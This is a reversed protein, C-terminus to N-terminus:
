NIKYDEFYTINDLAEMFDREDYHSITSMDMRFKEKKPFKHKTRDEDTILVALVSAWRWNLSSTGDPFVMGKDPLHIIIPYWFYGEDDIFRLSKILEPMGLQAEIEEMTIKDKHAWHGTNFGCGFCVKNFKATDEEEFRTYMANSTCRPCIDLSDLM